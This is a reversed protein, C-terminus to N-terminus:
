RDILAGLEKANRPAFGYADNNFHVYVDKGDGLYVEMRGADKKLAADSYCTAYNWGAYSFGSCGIRIGAM